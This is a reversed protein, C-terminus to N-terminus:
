VLRRSKAARAAACRARFSEGFPDVPGFRGPDFAPFDSAPRKGLIMDATLSGIGASLAIGHGCAGAVAWFGDIGPIPGLVIEGDPTYTSLGSIYNSFRAEMLGPFFRAVAHSADALLDWHEEGRTASFSAPDSPLDRADFTVSHAEQMGILLGGVEPRTYTSVDPLLTMPHDVGFRPDSECIWYHSRVPAMPLPYGVQQSILAAWAGGADIVSATEVPGKDTVVGIIKGADSMVDLVATRPRTVLGSARAARLYAQTLLYPDVYGDTPFLAARFPRDPRLWPVLSEARSPSVWEFPIDHKGADDVMAELESVRDPTAAIRLSGVQHFGVTDGLADELEPIAHCTAKALATNSPKTSAQLVLGAARSSAASALENREILLVSATSIACLHYAVSAGLIGGGIIVHDFNTMRRHGLDTTHTTEPVTKHATAFSLPTTISCVISHDRSRCLRDIRGISSGFPM